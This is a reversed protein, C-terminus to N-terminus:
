DENIELNEAVLTERLKSIKHILSAESPNVQDSPMYTVACKLIDPYDLDAYINDIYNFLEVRNRIVDIGYSLLVSLIVMDPTSISSPRYKPKHVYEVARSIISREKAFEIDKDRLLSFEAIYDELSTDHDLM